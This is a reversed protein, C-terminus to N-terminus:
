RRDVRRHTVTRSIFSPGEPEAILDSIGLRRLVRHEVQGLGQDADEETTSGPRGVHAASLAFERADFRFSTRRGSRDPLISARIPSRIIGVNGRDGRDNASYILVNVEVKKVQAVASKPVTV